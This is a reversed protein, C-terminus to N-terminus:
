LVCQSTSTPFSKLSGLKGGTGDITGYGASVMNVWSKQFASLFASNSYVFKKVLPNMQQFTIDMNGTPDIWKKVGHSDENFIQVFGNNPMPGYCRLPPPTDFPSGDPITTDERECHQLELGTHFDGFRNQYSTTNLPYLLAMDTNLMISRSAKIDGTAAIIRFPGCDNVTVNNPYLNGKGFGKMGCHYDIWINKNYDVLRNYMTGWTVNNLARYYQNDFLTPTLDFANVTIDTKATKDNPHGDYGSSTPHVHGLTHAGLLAVADAYTLGLQKIFVQRIADVGLQADPARGIGASCDKTEKRGYQFPLVLTKTPESLEIAFKGYLVYFDARNISDCYQQYVPELIQFIPSSQEILGAAELADGICGDAGMLDTPKTMDLDAVDHFVIRVAGGLLDALLFQDSVKGTQKYANIQNKVSLYIGKYATCLSTTRYVVAAGNTKSCIPYSFASNRSTPYSTHPSRDTLVTPVYPTPNRTRVNSPSRSPTTGTASQKFTPKSTPAKSPKPSPYLNPKKSTGAAAISPAEEVASLLNRNQEHSFTTAVETEGGRLLPCFSYIPSCYILFLLISGFKKTVSKM